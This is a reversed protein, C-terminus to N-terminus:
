EAEGFFNEFLVRNWRLLEPDQLEDVFLEPARAETRLNSRLMASGLEFSMEPHFQTGWVPQSGYAFAQVVCDNTSAIVRFPDPLDFVEDYHSHVAILDPIGAFLGDPQLRLTKWGFEPIEAKRCCVRGALARAIMQHGYCIGLVRRGRDVFDKIMACLEADRPNEEAASLESGSLILHSYAEGNLLEDSPPHGCLHVLDWEGGFWTGLCPAVEKDFSRKPGLAEICNVILLRKLMELADGM